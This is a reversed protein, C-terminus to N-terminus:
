SQHCGPVQEKRAGVDINSTMMRVARADSPIACENEPPLIEELEAQQAKSLSAPYEVTFIVYLDGKVDPNEKHPMGAGKIVKAENHKTLTSSELVIVSGDVHRQAFRFGCLSSRLTIKKQLILDNGHRKFHEHDTTQIVFVVNGTVKGPQEDALGSFIFQHGDETGPLVHVEVTHKDVITKKGKCDDCKNTNLSGTGNCAPCTSQIRQMFGPGLARMHHHVGKGNCIACANAAGGKCGTGSCGKCNVNRSICMKFSRGKYLDELSVRLPHTISPTTQPGGFNGGFFQAFIDPPFGHPMQPGQQFGSKLSEDGFQDYMRKKEPDSLVEYAESVEKFKDANGGKDPHHALALKRYAKKITDADADKAVELVAYPNMM